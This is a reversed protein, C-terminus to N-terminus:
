TTPQHQIKSVMLPSRERRFNDSAFMSKSGKLKGNKAKSSPPKASEGPDTAATRTASAYAAVRQM